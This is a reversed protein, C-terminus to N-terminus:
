FMMWASAVYTLRAGALFESLNTKRTAKKNTLELFYVTPNMKNPWYNLFRFRRVKATKQLYHLEEFNGIHFSDDSQLYWLNTKYQAREQKSIWGIFLQPYVIGETFIPLYSSDCSLRLVKNGFWIETSSKVNIDGSFRPHSQWHYKKRFWQKTWKIEQEGQNKAAHELLSCGEFTVVVLIFLCLLLGRSAINIHSDNSHYCTFLKM